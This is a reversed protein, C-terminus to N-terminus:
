KTKARAKGDNSIVCVEDEKCNMKKAGKKTPKTGLVIRENLFFDTNRAICYRSKGIINKKSGDLRFLIGTFNDWNKREVGKSKKVGYKSVINEKENDEKM